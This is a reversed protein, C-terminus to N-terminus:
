RQCQKLVATIRQVSLRALEPDQDIQKWNLSVGNYLAGMNRQIIQSPFKDGQDEAFIATEGQQLYIYPHGTYLQSVTRIPSADATVINQCQIGERRRMADKMYSLVDHDNVGFVHMHPHYISQVKSEGYGNARSGGGHEGIVINTGLEASLRQLTYGVEEEYAKLQAFSQLHQDPIILLHIGDPHVPLLDPEVRLHKGQFLIANKLQPAGWNEFYGNIPQPKCFRCSEEIKRM